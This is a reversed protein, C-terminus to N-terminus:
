PTAVPEPESAAPRVARAAAREAMASTITKVMAGIFLVKLLWGKVLTVPDIMGNVVQIVLFLCLGTVAAPLPARRAWFSLGIFSAALIGNIVWVRLAETKVEAILDAVKVPKSHGPVTLLEDPEYESLVELAENAQKQATYGMFAGAVIFIVGLWFMWGAAAKSRAKHENQAYKLRYDAVQPRARLRAATRLPAPNAASGEPPASGAAVSEGAPEGAQGPAPVESVPDFAPVEPVIAAPAAGGVPGGCARCTYTRDAVPLKWAKGCGPCVAEIM